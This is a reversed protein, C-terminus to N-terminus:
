PYQVCTYICASFVSQLRLITNIFVHIPGVYPGTYTRVYMPIAQNCVTVIGNTQQTTLQSLTVAHHRDQAARSWAHMDTTGRRTVVINVLFSSSRNIEQFIYVYKCWFQCPPLHMSIADWPCSIAKRWRIQHHFIM